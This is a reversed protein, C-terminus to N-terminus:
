PAPVPGAESNGVAAAVEAPTFLGEQCLELAVRGAIVVKGPPIKREGSLEDLVAGGYAMVDYAYKASPRDPSQWCLGLAAVAARPENREAALVVELRVTYSKPPALLLPSGNLDVQTNAM